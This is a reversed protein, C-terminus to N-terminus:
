EDEDPADVPEPAKVVEAEATIVLLFRNEDPAPGQTPEPSDTM